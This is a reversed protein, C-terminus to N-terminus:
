DGGEAVWGGLVFVREVGGAVGEEVGEVLGEGVGGKGFASGVAVAEEGGM